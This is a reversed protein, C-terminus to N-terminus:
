EHRNSAASRSSEHEFFVQFELTPDAEVTVYALDPRKMDFYGWPFTLTGVIEIRGAALQAQLPISVLRTVGHITLDGPVTVSALGSAAADASLVIDSTSVFTAAPFLDTEIAMTRMHDDRRVEDSKLTSVDVEIRMGKEVRLEAGDGALRFGGTIAGTRGVADNSAPLRLLKERVRYGAVSGQGVSWAGTPAAATTVRSQTSLRLVPPSDPTFFLAWTSAVTAVPLIVAGAVLLGRRRRSSQSRAREPCGPVREAARVLTTSSM